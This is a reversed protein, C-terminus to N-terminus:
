NGLWPDCRCGRCQFTFDQGSSWWSPGPARSKLHESPGGFGPFLRWPKVWSPVSPAPLPKRTARVGPARGGAGWGEATNGVMGPESESEPDGGEGGSSQVAGQPAGALSRSSDTLFNANWLTDSLSQAPECELDVTHLRNAWGKHGVRPTPRRDSSGWTHPHTDRGLSPLPVPGPGDTPHPQGGSGQHHM